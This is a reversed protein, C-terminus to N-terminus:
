IPVSIMVLVVSPDFCTEREAKRASTGCREKSTRSAVCQTHFMSQLCCHLGTKNILMIVIIELFYLKQKSSIRPEVMVLLGYERWM